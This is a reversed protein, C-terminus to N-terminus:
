GDSLMGWGPPDARVLGQTPHCFNGLPVVEDVAQLVEVCLEVVRSKGERMDFVHGTEEVLDATRPDLHEEVNIVRLDLFPVHDFYYPLEMLEEPVDVHGINGTAM